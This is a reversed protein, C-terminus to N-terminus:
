VDIAEDDRKEGDELFCGSRPVTFHDQYEWDVINVPRRTALDHLHLVRDANACKRLEQVTDQRM